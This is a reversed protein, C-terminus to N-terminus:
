IKMEYLVLNVNKPDFLELNGTTNKRYTQIRTSKMHVCKSPNYYLNAKDQFDESGLKITRQTSIRLNFRNIWFNMAKASEVIFDFKKGDNYEVYITTRLFKFKNEHELCEFTAVAFLKNERTKDRLGHHKVMDAVDSMIKNEPSIPDIIKRSENELDCQHKLATALNGAMRTIDNLGPEYAYPKALLDNLEDWPKLIDNIFKIEKENMDESLKYLKLRLAPSM